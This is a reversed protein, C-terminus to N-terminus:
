DEEPLMITAVPENDDGLGLVAKLTVLVACPADTVCYLQFSCTDTHPASLALALMWLVDWLRGDVTNLAREAAPTMAVSLDYAARTFAVSRHDVRAPVCVLAGEEILRKRTVSFAAVVNM